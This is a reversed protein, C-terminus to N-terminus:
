AVLNSTFWNVTFFTYRTYVNKVTLQYEAYDPWLYWAFFLVGPGSWGPESALCLFFFAGPGSRGPEYILCFVLIAPKLLTLM